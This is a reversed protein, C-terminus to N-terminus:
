PPSQLANVQDDDLPYAARVDGLNFHNGHTPGETQTPSRFGLDKKFDSGLPSVEGHHRDITGMPRAQRPGGVISSFQSSGAFASIVNDPSQAGEGARGFFAAFPPRRRDESTM